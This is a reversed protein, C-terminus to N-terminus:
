MTALVGYKKAYDSGVHLTKMPRKESVSLCYLVIDWPATRNPERDSVRVGCRDRCEKVVNETCIDHNDKPIWRLLPEFRLIDLFGYTPFMFGVKPKDADKRANHAAVARTDAFVDYLPIIDIRRTSRMEDKLEHITKFKGVNLTEGDGLYLSVHFPPPTWPFRSVKKSFPWEARHNGFWETIKPGNGYFVVISFKPVDEFEILPLVPFTELKESM